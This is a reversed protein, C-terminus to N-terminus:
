VMRGVAALLAPAFEQRVLVKVMEEIEAQAARRAGRGDSLRADVFADTRRRLVGDVLPQVMETAILKADGFRPSPEALLTAASPVALAAVVARRPDAGAIKARAYATVADAISWEMFSRADDVSPTAVHSIFGM